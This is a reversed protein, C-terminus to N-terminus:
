VHDTNLKMLYNDLHHIFQDMPDTPWDIMLDFAYHYSSNRRGVKWTADVKGVLIEGLLDDTATLDILFDYTSSLVAAPTASKIKGLFGFSAPSMTFIYSKDFASNRRSKESKFLVFFNVERYGRNRLTNVYDLVYKFGHDHQRGIVVVRQSRAPVIAASKRNRNRANRRLFYRVLPKFIM